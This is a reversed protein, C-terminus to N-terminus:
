KKSTEMAKPIFINLYINWYINYLLYTDYFCFFSIYTYIHTNKKSQMKSFFVYTYINFLCFLARLVWCACGGEPDKTENPSDKLVVEQVPDPFFSFYRLSFFYLLFTLSFDVYFILNFLIINNFQEQQNGKKKGISFINHMSSNLRGVKLSIKYCSLPFCM